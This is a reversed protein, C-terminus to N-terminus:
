KRALLKQKRNKKTKTTPKKKKLQRPLRRKLMSKLPPNKM